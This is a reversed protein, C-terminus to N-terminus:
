IGGFETKNLYTTEWSVGSCQCFQFANDGPDVKWADEYIPKLITAYQCNAQVQESCFWSNPDHWDRKGTAFGLIGRKDYPKGLCQNSFEWYLKEQAETVPITFITYKIINTDYNDPRDWYGPKVSGWTDSRAGRLYGEPTYVDIHSYGGGGFWGILSSNFGRGQQLRFRM